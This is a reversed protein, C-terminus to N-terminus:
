KRAMAPRDSVGKEGTDYMVVHAGSMRTTPMLM